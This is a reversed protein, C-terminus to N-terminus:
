TCSARKNFYAERVKKTLVCYFFGYCSPPLRNKSDIHRSWFGALDGKLPEPSGLGTYKNREIDKILDNIKKLTKKDQKQWYIYDNWATESWIKKM